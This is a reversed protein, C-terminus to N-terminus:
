TIPCKRYMKLRAASLCLDVEKHKVMRRLADRANNDEMKWCEAARAATFEEDPIMGLMKKRKARAEKAVRANRAVTAAHLNVTITM